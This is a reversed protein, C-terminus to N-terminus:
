PCEWLSTHSEMKLIIFLSQHPIIFKNQPIDKKKMADLKWISYSQRVQQWSVITKREERITTGNKSSYFFYLIKKLFNNGVFWISIKHRVVVIEIKNYGQSVAHSERYPIQKTKRIKKQSFYSLQNYFDRISQKTEKQPTNSLHLLKEAKDLQWVKCQDTWLRISHM